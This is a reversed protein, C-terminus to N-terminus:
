FIWSIRLTTMRAPSDVRRRMNQGVYKVTFKREELARVLLQLACPTAKLRYDLGLAQPSAVRINDLIKPLHTFVEHRSQAEGATINFEYKTDAQEKPKVTETTQGDATSSEYVPQRYLALAINDRRYRAGWEEALERTVAVALQVTNNNRDEAFVGFMYGQLMTPQGPQLPVVYPPFLQTGQPLGMVVKVGPTQMIRLRFELESSTRKGQVLTHDPAGGSWQQTWNGGTLGRLVSHVDEVNPWHVAVYPDKPASGPPWPVLSTNIAANIAARLYIFRDNNM